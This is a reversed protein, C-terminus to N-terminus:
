FQQTCVLLVRQFLAFLPQAVTWFIMNVDLLNAWDLEKSQFIFAEPILSNGDYNLHRKLFFSLM